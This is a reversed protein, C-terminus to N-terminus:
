ILHVVHLIVSVISSSGAGLFVAWLQWHRLAQQRSEKVTMRDMQAEVAASIVNPLALEYAKQRDEVQKARARLEGLAGESVGARGVLTTTLDRLDSAIQNVTTTLKAVDAGTAATALSVAEDVQEQTYAM